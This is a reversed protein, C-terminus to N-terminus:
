KWAPDLRVANYGASNLKGEKFGSYSFGANM